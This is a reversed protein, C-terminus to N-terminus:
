IPPIWRLPSNGVASFTGTEPKPAVCGSVFSITSRGLTVSCVVLSSLSDRFHDLTYESSASLRSHPLNASVSSPFLVERESSQHHQDLRSGGRNASTVTGQFQVALLMELPMPFVRLGTGFGPESTLVTRLRKQINRFRECGSKYTNANEETFFGPKLGRKRM